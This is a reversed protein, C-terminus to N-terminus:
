KPSERLVMISYKSEKAHPWVLKNHFKFVFKNANKRLLFRLFVKYYSM